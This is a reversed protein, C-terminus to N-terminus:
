EDFTLAFTKSKAGAMWEELAKQCVPCLFRKQDPMESTYTGRTVKVWNESLAWRSAERGCRDCYYKIM